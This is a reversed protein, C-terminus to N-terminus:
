MYTLCLTTRYLQHIAIIHQMWYVAVTLSSLQQIHIHNQISQFNLKFTDM